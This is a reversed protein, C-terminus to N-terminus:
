KDKLPVAPGMKMGNAKMAKARMEEQKELKQQEEAEAAEIDEKSRRLLLAYFVGREADISHVERTIWGSPEEWEEGIPIEVVKLVPNRDGPKAM